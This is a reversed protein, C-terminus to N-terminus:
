RLLVLREFDSEVKRSANDSLQSILKVKYLYVGKALQDGYEDRGDWHIDSVRYGESVADYVSITKVLRGSVTFIQIHIDMPVGPLNHEFQFNTSTTFPNPYNLVHELSQAADDVVVFELYAESFNNAIDWATVKVNHKGPELESLPYRAEGSKYDNLSAEYFDNLVFSNQSDSDLEGELDHGVSNGAINIGRDDSLQVLLTPNMDTIGGFVFSEDNMYLQILPGQDDGLGNPDAGGVIFDTFFGAADTSVEDSAYLSVKGPGYAFNIDKPVVFEFSFRGSEVSAIGKFIVQNQTKFPVVGSKPDNGLTYLTRVKDFVTIYVKGNFSSLFQGSSNRVEGSMSVKELASITDPLSVNVPLNNVETIVIDHKPVALVQAPDGILAFKRANLQSTDFGSNNKALRLIDGIAYYELGGSKFLREFVAKTLRENSGSYVSRVTTFLAVAGGQPNLLTQEGASVLSPEDYTTFTCTATILLPLKQSNKWSLVDATRLVREQSWGNYGGHGLYNLVLLGKFVANNLATNAEPYRAGGPTSEQKYADLYIKQTNFNHNSTDVIRSVRESQDLHLNSDEDDAVYGLKLRWDGLFAPDTDYRIIKDVVIDAEAATSVPIRGTAIDIAGVLNAGEDPSLLSYFDDTPFAYIPDLSEDTEYVPIFNDNDINQNLGRLDYSGDGVLLLYRFNPSREYLMRAFERIGTPDQSGGAFENMVHSVDAKVVELGSFSRRHEALRNAAMEFDPHYVILMDASQIAHLNQPAVESVFEPLPISANPNFAIFTKIEQNTNISFTAINGQQNYEQLKPNVPNTIDWITMEGTENQVNFGLSNVTLSRKDRFRIPAGRFILNRNVNMEIYDLWGQSTGGGVSPYRIRVTQNPGSATMTERITGIHAIDDEVNGLNVSSIPKSFTQGNIDAYVTAVSGSSSAFAIEVGIESGPIIDPFVFYNNYDRERTGSFEDGFWRKGSGPIRYKGLINVKDEEFILYDQYTNTTLEPSSTSAQSQIRSGTTGDVRLMYHNRTDFTNKQYHFRGDSTQYIWKDPGEGYFLFYEGQDLKQDQNGFFQLPVEEFDDIREASVLANLVGGGNTYLKVQQPNFDNANLKLTGTLFGFDLKYLGDAPVAIKYSQGNALISSTKFNTSRSNSINSLPNVILRGSFSTVKRYQSGNGIIPIFFYRLYFDRGEQEILTNIQFSESIGARDSEPCRLDINEYSINGPIFEAESPGNIRIRESFIPLSGYHASVGGDELRYNLFQGSEDAPLQYWDLTHSVQFNNTQASVVLSLSAFFLFTLINRM